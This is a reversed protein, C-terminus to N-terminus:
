RLPTIHITADHQGTIVGELVVWVGEYSPTTGCQNVVTNNYKYPQIKDSTINRMIMGDQTVNIELYVKVM